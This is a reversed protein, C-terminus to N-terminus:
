VDSEEKRWTDLYSSLYHGWNMRLQETMREATLELTADFMAEAKSYSILLLDILAVLQRSYEMEEDHEDLVQRVTYIEQFFQHRLNYRLVDTGGLHNTEVFEPGKWEDEMINFPQSKFRAHWRAKQEEDADKLLQETLRRSEDELDKGKDIESRPVKTKKAVREADRHSSQEDEGPEGKRDAAKAKTWVERVTELATKRTPTIAAQIARKLETSPVAGRKINKVTFARDLVADFSIECGWWRDIEKFPEGPWWPIPGYFVERDNRLISVGENRDISREKAAASNGSGQTPRFAEPLLSMRITIISKSPGGDVRDDNPVPWELKVEEYIDATPDDPFATLDTRAYLPDIAHVPAGNITIEAGGWIFHRYTRGMWIRMEELIKRARAPQRDYSEWVMLTGTDGVLDRLGEPVERPTPAPIGKMEDRKIRDLDIFTSLWPGGDQRSYLTVRKCQNIAALTVGVGFRGIGSRDNYRSSYGLQLCHHLVGEDMGEGNDGFAIRTVPEANGEQLSDLRIKVRDANAQLSNDVVEGYASYADFDSDRLSELAQADSVLGIEMPGGTTETNTRPENM